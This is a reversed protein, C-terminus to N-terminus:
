KVGQVRRREERIFASILEFNFRAKETDINKEIASKFLNL